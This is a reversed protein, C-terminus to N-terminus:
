LITWAKRQYNHADHMQNYIFYIFLYIVQDKFKYFFPSVM